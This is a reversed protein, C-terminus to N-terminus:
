KQPWIFSFIPSIGENKRMPKSLRNLYISATHVLENLKSALFRTKKVFHKIGELGRSNKRFVSSKKIKQGLNQFFFDRDQSYCDKKAKWGVNNHALPVLNTPGAVLPLEVELVPDHVEVSFVVNELFGDAFRLPLEATWLMRLQM